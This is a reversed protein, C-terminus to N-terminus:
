EVLHTVLFNTVLDVLFVCKGEVIEQYEFIASVLHSVVPCFEDSLGLSNFQLDFDIKQITKITQKLANQASLFIFILSKALTRSSLNVWFQVSRCHLVSTLDNSRHFCRTNGKGLRTKRVIM